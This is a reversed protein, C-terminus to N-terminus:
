GYLNQAATHDTEVSQVWPLILSRKWIQIRKMQFEKTITQYEGTLDVTEQCYPTWDENGDADKHTSGDRQLAYSVKRDISSKMKLSLRYWQGQELKVGTQKLQIHWDAEGTDNITFDAANDENLSDVVYTVNSPTYCYVEFGAM